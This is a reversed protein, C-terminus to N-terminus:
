FEDLWIKDLKQGYYPGTKFEYVITGEELVEYAHGGQFTMAIDGENLIEEAIVQDDLDYMFIKAKGKMIVWSEQAIAKDEGEKYLHKQPKFIKGKPLNLAACQLFEKEHVLNNKEAIIDEKRHVLHLVKGEEVKSIIKKM